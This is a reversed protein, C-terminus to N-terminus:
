TVGQLCLDREAARRTVLGQVKRGGAYVWKDLEHCAGTYDSANLKRVLTSGCFARSGINYSFQIFADYEHQHLPVKVCQKIAGEFKQVDQLARALAKPPTIKDGLKVGDTAGFGITLKDGPIPIIPKDSYGEQMVLGVLAAASLALSTIATRPINM